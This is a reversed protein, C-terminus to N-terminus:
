HKASSAIHETRRVVNIMGDQQLGMLLRTQHQKRSPHITAAHSSIGISFTAPRHLIELATADTGGLEATAPANATHAERLPPAIGAVSVRRRSDWWPERHDGGVRARRRHVGVHDVRHNGPLATRNPAASTSVASSRCQADQPAPIGHPARMCPIEGCRSLMFLM